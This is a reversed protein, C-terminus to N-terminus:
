NDACSRIEKQSQCYTEFDLNPLLALCLCMKWVTIESMDFQKLGVGMLIHRKLKLDLMHNLFYGKFVKKWMLVSFSCHGFVEIFIM